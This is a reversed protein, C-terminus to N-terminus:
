NGYINLNSFGYDIESLKGDTFTFTPLQNKIPDAGMVRYNFMEKMPNIIQIMEMQKNPDTIRKVVNDLINVVKNKSFSLSEIIQSGHKNTEISYCDKISSGIGKTSIGMEKLSFVIVKLGHDLHMVANNKLLVDFVMSTNMGLTYKGNYVLNGWYKGYKEFLPKKVKEEVILKEIKEIQTNVFETKEPKINLAKLYLSKALLYRENDFALSALSNYSQYLRENNLERAINRKKSPSEVESVKLSDEKSLHFEDLWNGNEVSGDAFQMKGSIPIGCVWQGSMNGQFEEGTSYKLKGDTLIRNVSNNITDKTTESKGIFVDGNKFTYKVEVTYYLYDVIDWFGYKQVLSQSVDIELKAFKIDKNKSSYVIQYKYNNDPQKILEESDM